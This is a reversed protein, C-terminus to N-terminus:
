KEKKPAPEDWAARPKAETLGVTEGLWFFPEDEKEKPPQEYAQYDDGYSVYRLAKTGNALHQTLKTRVLFSTGVNFDRELRDEADEFSDVHMVGNVPTEFTAGDGGPYRVALVSEFEILTTNAKAAM